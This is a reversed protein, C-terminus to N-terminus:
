GGLVGTAAQAGAAEAGAAGTAGPPTLPNAANTRFGKTSVLAQPGAQFFVALDFGWAAITAPGTAPPYEAIVALAAFVLSGGLLRGPVPPRHYEQIERWTMIGLGVAWALVLGRV